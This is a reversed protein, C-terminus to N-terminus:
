PGGVQGRVDLRLFDIKWNDNTDLAIQNEGSEEGVYGVKVTLPLAGGDDLRLAEPDSVTFSFEGTPNEVSHVVQGNMSVTLRRSPANMKITVTAERPQLPLVPTLFALVIVAVVMM